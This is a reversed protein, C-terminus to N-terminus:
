AATYFRIGALSVWLNSSPSVPTVTGDSGIDVRGVANNSLVGFPMTATPRFGPPLTFAASGVTGSKIVGRLTVWGLPDKWFAVAHYPAGWSVWANAFAPEGTVGITHLMQGPFVIDGKVEVGEEIFLDDVILSSLQINTNRDLYDKLFRVLDSVSWNSIDGRPGVGGGPM